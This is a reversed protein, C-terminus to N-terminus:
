LVRRDTEVGDFIGPLFALMGLAALEARVEEDLLMVPDEYHLDLVVALDFLRRRFVHFLM